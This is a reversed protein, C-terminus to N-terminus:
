RKAKKKEAPAADIKEAHERRVLQRVVDSASLGTLEALAQLMALEADSMRVNFM